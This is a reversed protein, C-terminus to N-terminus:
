LDPAYFSCNRCVSRLENRSFSGRVERAADGNLIDHLPAEKINGVVLDDFETDKVRCACLRVSGDFLIMADYVRECAISKMRPVRRLRMAGVMDKETIAGGWNDYTMMFKVIVKPSLFPKIVRQFDPLAMTQEPLLPSRFQIIITLPEGKERNYALLKSLGDRFTEYAAVGYIEKYIEPDMATTSLHMEHLGSDILRKYADNRGLLIGNSYFYTKSIGKLGVAYRIKEMLGPDVLAEGLTPTFSVVGGGLAAYEDIAKKFVAFDMIGTPHDVLRYACFVCKANCISTVNFFLCDPVVPGKRVRARRMGSAILLDAAIIGATHCAHVARYKLNRLM